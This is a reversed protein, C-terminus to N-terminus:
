KTQRLSEVGAAGLVLLGGIIIRLIPIEGLLLLALVIAYLPQIMMMVSTARAGLHRISNLMLTHAIATALLALLLLNRIDIFTVDAQLVLIAPLLFISGFVMQWFMVMPAGYTKSYDKSIINRLSVLLASFLGLLVGILTSGGLSYDDIMLAIGAFAILAVVIDQTHIHSRDFIPELFTTIIPATFVALIGVAVSSVQISAFFTSWHLMMVIGLAVMVLTDKTSRLRFSQKRYVLYLGIFPATLAARGLIILVPHWDILKAFLGAISMCVIAINLGILARTKDTQM